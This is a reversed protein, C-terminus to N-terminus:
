TSRFNWAKQAIVVYLVGFVPPILEEYFNSSDFYFTIAALGMCVCIGSSGTTSSLPCNQTSRSSFYREEMTPTINFTTVRERTNERNTSSNFKLNQSGDIKRRRIKRREEFREENTRRPFDGKEM